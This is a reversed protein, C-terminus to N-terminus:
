SFSYFYPLFCFSNLLISNTLEDLRLNSKMMRLIIENIFVTILHFRDEVSSIVEHHFGRKVRIFDAKPLHNVDRYGRIKLM